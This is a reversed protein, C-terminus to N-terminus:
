KLQQAILQIPHLVQTSLNAERIGARLHMACGTNSTVLYDSQQEKLLDIVPQRLREAMDPQTLMYSGAAGCCDTFPIRNIAIDPIKSLLQYVAADSKLQNKLSCPTHVWVQQSMPALELSGIAGNRFLFDSIDQVPHSLDANFQSYEILQASCGSVCSIIAEVDLNDFTIQNKRAFKRAQEKDGNHLHIAGCCAQEEPIIIQYGCQELVQIAASLVPKETLSTVCGTFLAVTGRKHQNTNLTKAVHPNTQDATPLLDDM